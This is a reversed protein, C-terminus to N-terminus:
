LSAAVSAYWKKQRLSGNSVKTKVEPESRPLGDSNLGHCTGGQLGDFFTEVPAGLLIKPSNEGLKWGTVTPRTLVARRSPM